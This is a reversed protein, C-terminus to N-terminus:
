HCCSHGKKEAKGENDPDGSDPKHEDCKETGHKRQACCGYGFFYMGIFMVAILLLIWNNIIWEM